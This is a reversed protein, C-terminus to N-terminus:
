EKQLRYRFDCIEAGELITGTRKLTINPNFGKILADIVPALVRAEVERRILVGITENLTDPSPNTTSAENKPDDEDIM